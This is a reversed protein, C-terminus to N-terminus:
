ELVFVVAARAPIHFNGDDKRYRAQKRVRADAAKNSRQAPHLRWRKGAQGPLSFDCARTDVNIFYLLEAFGAGPYDHGDLHGVQLTGVQAPGTNFFHLRQRVEAASRLRFLTSSTRIRLLDLFADRTWRINAADPKITANALLPRLLPWDKGNDAQSPLGSGFGNDSFTWDIRNFWDGSDYSNRDLSKSRLGEGGAHWYAIGQSFADIALGLIQVRARDESTTALPLKLVNMDFLTPNDHNEVYNVVEGPESAYGAPQGAYDIDALRRTEGDATQMSFDALSGALGLRVLDASRLLDARQAHGAAKANPAYNLGNVYGQRSILDVGSDCCGGGRVADRGRDSFTAIGSGALSAQSAQVFRAGDAVEGFNWGEGLLVVHQGRAQDAARQVTEMAARPQHGMLDFRFSDIHYERAWTAVSDRMLRAMMRQETATNACCTSREIAGNADLRQYYGPVIRDLVSKEDQGSASTHNYVVDMGVRLGADHLGQVMQRFERIRVRGDDADSAYSGEPATYHLPEYGWNYCDRDRTRAILAQQDESDATGTPKPTVCGSEPITAIDFVPLLHVDTMGARALARLHRMGNSAANSFALYKGRHAKPVSDDYVSFDRLHLEYIQMDTASAIPAPSRDTDWREPEVDSAELSGIWSRKSDTNLSLSYPDTVRNRVIGVGTVFVDVLYTYYRNSLDEPFTASWIGSTADRQMPELKAANSQSSPYICLSVQQATPAWLAFRTQANSVQAGLDHADAADAYLTDLATASQVYTADLISDDAALEALVLQGRLLNPLRAADADTLHLIAGKGLYTFTHEINTSAPDAVPHVKADDAHIGAQGAMRSNFAAPIVTFPSPTSELSLQQDAGTVPKGIQAEISASASAFLRYRAQVSKGPWILRRSDLWVARADTQTHRAPTLVTQWAGNSCDERTASEASVQVPVWALLLVCSIAAYKM